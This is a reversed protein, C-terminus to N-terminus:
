CKEPLSRSLIIHTSIVAPYFTPFRLLFSRSLDHALDSTGRAGASMPQHAPRLDGCARGAIGRLGPPLACFRRARTASFREGPSGVGGLPAKPPTSSGRPTVHHGARSRPPVEQFAGAEPRVGDPKHPAAEDRGVQSRDMSGLARCQSGGFGGLAQRWSHGQGRPAYACRVACGGVAMHHHTHHRPRWTARITQGQMYHGQGQMYPSLARTRAHLNLLLWWERHNASRLPSPTTNRDM